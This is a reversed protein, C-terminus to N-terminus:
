RGREPKPATVATPIPTPQPTPTRPRTPPPTPLIVETPGTTPPPPAPKPEAVPPLMPDPTPYRGGAVSQLEQAFAAATGYREVPNKAMARNILTQCAAPVHGGEIQPIPDTVHKVALAMPTTAEYPRRGSLMEFLIV